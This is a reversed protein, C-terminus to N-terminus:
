PLKKNRRFSGRNLNAYGVRYGVMMNGRGEYCGKRNELVYRTALLLRKTVGAKLM